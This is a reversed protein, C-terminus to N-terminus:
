QSRWLVGNELRFRKSKHTKLIQPLTELDTKFYKGVKEFYLLKKVNKQDKESLTSLEKKMDLQRRTKIIQWHTM